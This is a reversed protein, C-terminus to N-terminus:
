AVSGLSLYSLEGEMGFKGASIDITSMDFSVFARVDAGKFGTLVCSGIKRM